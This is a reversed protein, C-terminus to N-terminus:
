SFDGEFIKRLIIRVWRRGEFSDCWQLPSKDGMAPIPSSLWEIADEAEPWLEMADRITRLADIFSETEHKTLQRQSTEELADLPINLAAAILEKIVKDQAIKKVVVGPLRERVQTIRRFSDDLVAPDIDAAFLMSEFENM